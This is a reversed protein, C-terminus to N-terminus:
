GTAPAIFTEKVKLLDGDSKVEIFVVEPYQERLQKIRNDVRSEFAWMYRILKLSFREDCGEARDQIDTRKLAVRKLIRWLCLLKPYNFYLCLDARSYRMGLSKISNGDLIWRESDVINKQIDLFEEYDREVWNEVFFHRDLHYLPIGTEIHLQHAFTSKGSGPRGFVM